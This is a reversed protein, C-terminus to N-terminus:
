AGEQLSAVPKATKAMNRVIAEPVRMRAVQLRKQKAEIIRTLIHARDLPKMIM